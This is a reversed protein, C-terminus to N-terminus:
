RSGLQFHSLIAVLNLRDFLLQFYSLLYYRKKEQRLDLKEILIAYECKM